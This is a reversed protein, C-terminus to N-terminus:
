PLPQVYPDGAGHHAHGPFHGWKDSVVVQWVPVGPAVGELRGTDQVLRLRVLYGNTLARELELGEFPRAGENALHDAVYVLLGYALHLPLGFAALECGPRPLAGLGLTYIFPPEDSDGHHVWVASSCGPLRPSAPERLLWNTPDDSIVHGTRM